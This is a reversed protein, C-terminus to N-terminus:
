GTASRSRSYPSPDGDAAYAVLGAAGNVIGIHVDDVARGFAEAQRAVQERGRLLRPLDAVGTDARVVVDASLTEVLRGDALRVVYAERWEGDHVALRFPLNDLLENAVVVGDLPGPPLDSRSEVGDPHRARQAASVDM